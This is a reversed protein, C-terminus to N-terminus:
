SIFENEFDGDVFHINGANSFLNIQDNPAYVSFNPTDGRDYFSNRKLIEQLKENTTWCFMKYCGMKKLYKKSFRIIISSEDKESPDWLLDVIKGIENQSRLVFFSVIKSNKKRYFIHYKIHPVEAYRWNMYNADKIWVGDLKDFTRKQFDDFEPGFTKIKTFDDSFYPLSKLQSKRHNYINYKVGLWKTLSLLSVLYNSPIVPKFGFNIRMKYMGPNTGRAYTIPIEEVINEYLKNMIGRRRYDPHVMSDFGFYVNYITKYIKVKALFQSTAGVVKGNDEAIYIRSHEAYPYKLYQWEWRIENIKYGYCSQFLQFLKERNETIHNFVRYVM